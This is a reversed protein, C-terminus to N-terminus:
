SANEAVFGAMRRQAARSEPFTFIPWDHIMGAVEQYEADPLAASLWRADTVLIDDGGGFALIPPLNQWDGFVPSVWPDNVPLAGAYLQGAERVGSLSLIADRRDIIAQDPHDPTVDLWPCILLLGNPMRHGANRAEIAIAATLGGGASDGGMIFPRAGWKTLYHRYFDMAWNKIGPANDEPALPYLPATIHWGHRLAMHCLFNFHAPTAPYVYGGGHWYLIHPADGKGRPAISWVPRGDFDERSIQLKAHWKRGPEPLPAARNQALAREFYEGGSYNRRIIGTKRLIYGFIRAKLSPQM